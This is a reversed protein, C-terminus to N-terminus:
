RHRKSEARVLHNNRNDWKERQEKVYWEAGERSSIKTLLTHIMESARSHEGAHEMEQRLTLAAQYWGANKGTM